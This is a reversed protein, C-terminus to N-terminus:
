RSCSGFVAVGPASHARPGRSLRPPLALRGCSRGAHPVRLGGPNKFGKQDTPSRLSGSRPTPLQSHPGGLPQPSQGEEEGTGGRGEGKPLLLITKETQSDTSRCLIIGDKLAEQFNPPHVLRHTGRDLKQAGGGGSPRTGVPALEQGRGSLRCSPGKNFHMSSLAPPPASCSLTSLSGSGPQWFHQSFHVLHEM